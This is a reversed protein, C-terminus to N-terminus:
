AAGASHLSEVEGAWALLDWDTYPRGILQAATPVGDRSFGNPVSIAPCASTLNFPVTFAVIWRDASEVGNVLPAHDIFHDDAGPAPMQMTPMLILDDEEFIEGLSRHLESVERRAEWTVTYNSGVALVDNVFGESLDTLEAGADLLSKVMPMYMAAFTLKVARFLRGFPWPFVTETITAGARALMQATSRLNAEVDADTQLDPMTTILRVRLDSLPRGSAPAPAYGALQAPNRRAMVSLMMSVDQVSRAMPGHHEVTELYTPAPVPVVGYSPKMGVVGCAAAPMRLSGASDTGQALPTAGMALAAAAGGSSGATSFAHNWPNVTQGFLLNDTISACGFEPTNTRAFPIAGADLLAAVSLDTQEAINDRLMLTGLTHPQGAVATLEKVAVPVGELARGQGARIRTRATEASARAADDFLFTFPRVHEQAHHARALFADMVEVPDLAGAALGRALDSAGLACVDDPEPGGAPFHYARQQPQM